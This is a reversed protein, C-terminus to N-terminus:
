QWQSLKTWELDALSPCTPPVQIVLVTQPVSARHVGIMHLISTGLWRGAIPVISMPGGVSGRYVLRLKGQQRILSRAVAEGLGDFDLETLIIPSACDPAFAMVTGPVPSATPRLGLLSLDSENTLRRGRMTDTEFRMTQAAIALVALVAFISHLYLKV